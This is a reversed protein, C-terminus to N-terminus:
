PAREPSIQFFHKAGFVWSGISLTAIQTAQQKPDPSMWQRDQPAARSLFIRGVVQGNELVDYDDDRWQGAARQLILSSM